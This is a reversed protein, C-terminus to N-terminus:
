SASAATVDRTRFVMFTATGLGLMCAVLVMFAHLGSVAAHGGFVSVGSFTAINEGLLFRGISHIWPVFGGLIAVVILEALYYGIGIAMGSASSRTVVTVCAVFVLYPLLVLWARGLLVAAHGWTTSSVVGPHVVPGKAIVSRIATAGVLLMLAGAALVALLLLKAALCPGRGAGRVLTPRVTGWGYEAGFVSATLIAFLILGIPIATGLGNPISGPLTFGDYFQHLRHPITGAIQRCDAQLGQLVQTNTGPPLSALDGALVDRCNVDRQSGGTGVTVSGGTQQLNRYQFYSGWVTLQSLLLLIVLLIWPVWRRVLKFWDWRILTALVSM